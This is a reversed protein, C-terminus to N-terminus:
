LNNNGPNFIRVRHKLRIYGSRRVCHLSVIMVLSAQKILVLSERRVEAVEGGLVVARERIGRNM